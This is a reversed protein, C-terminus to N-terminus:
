LRVDRTEEDQLLDDIWEGTKILAWHAAAGLVFGIALWGLTNWDM